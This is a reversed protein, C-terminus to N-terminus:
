KEPNKSSQGTEEEAKEEEEEGEKRGKGKEGVADKSLSKEGWSNNM